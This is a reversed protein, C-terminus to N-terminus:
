AAQTGYVVGEGAVVRGIVSATEGTEAAVALAQDVNAAPVVAAIGIGCNFARLMEAEAVGGQEQLWDFVAPRTWAAPDIAFGLGQPAVRPLNGTLGGGTIHAFARAGARRMLALAPKVYIRTPTLLAAGLTGEAFPCPADWGLGSDAVIRRVLSYGNSHVGDSALGIVADGEAVGAPLHAGREMAGVAFGALDFDGPPYMGPMEATEGGVLACGAMRC